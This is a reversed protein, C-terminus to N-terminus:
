APDGPREYRLTVLQFPRLVLDVVGDDGVSVGSPVPVPRELLDTAHVGALDFGPELRGTTRRGHAEYLRVVM